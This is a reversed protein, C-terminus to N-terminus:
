LATPTSPLRPPHARFPLPGERGVEGDGRGAKRVKIRLRTTLASTGTGCM